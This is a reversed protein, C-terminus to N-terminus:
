VEMDIISPEDELHEVKEQKNYIDDTDDEKEKKDKKKQEKKEKDKINLAPKQTEHSIEIKDREDEKKKIFNELAVKDNLVPQKQLIDQKKDVIETLQLVQRINNSAETQGM